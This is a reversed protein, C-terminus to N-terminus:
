SSKKLGFLELPHTLRWENSPGKIAGKLVLPVTVTAKGAVFTLSGVKAGSAAHTVVKTKLTSTIPTNSWTLISSSEAAVVTAGDKWQTTYRGFVQGAKTLTVEHFGSKITTILARAEADASERSESGLVVGVITIPAQAGVDLVSSFLLNSGNLTGTKIGNVGEIGLLDNTNSIPGVNAVTAGALGVIAAIAPTAMALKGIAILDAPTSVNRGDLGTPELMKTGTLKHAALWKKTAALFKTQSGYAWTSVAEAYNCASALLMTTLADRESMVSGTKMPEISAGLVYYKDYLDHDAKSFTINPGVSKTTLPKAELVVLTTVLKSISAMPMANSGGNAALIGDTGATGPFDDAGTVSAASEGTPTLALDIAAPATITAGHVTGTAAVTPANLTLPIYTAVAAVIVLAVVGFAIGRRKARRRRSVVSAPDMPRRQPREYEGANPFM